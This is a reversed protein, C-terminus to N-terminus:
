PFTSYYFIFIDFTIKKGAELVFLFQNLLTFSGYDIIDRANVVRGFGYSAGLLTNM